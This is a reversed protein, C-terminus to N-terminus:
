YLRTEFASDAHDVPRLGFSPAMVEVGHLVEIARAGDLKQFNGSIPCAAFNLALARFKGTRHKLTSLHSFFRQLVKALRQL